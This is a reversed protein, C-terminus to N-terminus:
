KARAAAEMVEVPAEVGTWERQALAAQHVLMGLGGQARLGRARASEVLPTEADKRYVADYVCARAPLLELPLAHFVEGHLGLSTANVVLDAGAFAASVGRKDFRRPRLRTKPLKDGLEMCLQAARPPSRNVVEISAAGARGLGVVIARAAGGAGFVVARKNAPDVGLGATLSALFGAGDTNHGTLRGDRAFVLTNVAGALEAEPTLSQCLAVISVKHPITVNAGVVGLARLGSVAAGLHDPTAPFPVYVFDLGLHAYAANHMAPSLSHAVPWGLLGTLKTHGNIRGAVM